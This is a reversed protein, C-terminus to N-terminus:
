IWIRIVMAGDLAHGGEKQAGLARSLWSYFSPSCYFPLTDKRDSCICARVFAYVDRCTGGAVDVPFLLYFSSSRLFSKDPIKKVNYIMYINGMTLWLWTKNLFRVFLTLLSFLKVEAVIWIGCSFTEKLLLCFAYYAWSYVHVYFYQNSKLGTKFYSWCMRADM